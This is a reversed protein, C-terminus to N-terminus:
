PSHQRTLFSAIDSIDELTYQTTDLAGLELQVKHCLIGLRIEAYELIDLYTVSDWLFLWRQRTPSELLGISLKDSQWRRRGLKRM